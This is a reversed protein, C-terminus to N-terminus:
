QVRTKTGGYYEKRRKNLDIKEKQAFFECVKIVGEPLIIYTGESLVLEVNMQLLKFVNMQLRGYPIGLFKSLEPITVPYQAEIPNGVIPFKM